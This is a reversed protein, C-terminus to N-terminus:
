PNRRVEALLEQAPDLMMGYRDELVKGISISISLSILAIILGEPLVELVGEGFILGEQETQRQLVRFILDQRRM